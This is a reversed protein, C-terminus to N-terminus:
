LALYGWVTTVLLVMMAFLGFYTARRARKGAQTRTDYLPVLFWLVLGLTFITIGLAEGAAGRFWQGFLKLVQFSSM